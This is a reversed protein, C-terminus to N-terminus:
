MKLGTELRWWCECIESLTAFILYNIAFIMCESLFCNCAHNFGIRTSFTFMFVHISLRLILLSTMLYLLCNLYRQKGKPWRYGMQSCLEKHHQLKQLVVFIGNRWYYSCGMYSLLTLFVVTFYTYFNILIVVSKKTDAFMESFDLLFKTTLVFVLFNHVIRYSALFRSRCLRGSGIAMYFDVIGNLACFFGLGLQVLSKLSRMVKDLPKWQLLQLMIYIDWRTSTDRGTM